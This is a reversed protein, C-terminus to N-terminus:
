WRCDEEEMFQSAVVVMAIGMGALLFSFITQPWGMKYHNSETDGMRAVCDCEPLFCQFLNEMCKTVSSRISLAEWHLAITVM